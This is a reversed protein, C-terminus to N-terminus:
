NHGEKQGEERGVFSKDRVAGEDDAYRIDQDAIRGAIYAATHAVANTSGAENKKM